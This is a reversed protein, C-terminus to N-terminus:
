APKVIDAYRALIDPNERLRSEIQPKEWWEVFVKGTRRLKDLRDFLGRTICSSVALFFGSCDFEELLDRIGCDLDNVGVSKKIAKCQVVVRRLVTPPSDGPVKSDPGPATHWEAIHDRGGDPQRTPGVQRVRVVRPEVQLLELILLEFREPNCHASWAFGPRLFEMEKKQRSLIASRENEYARRGTQTDAVVLMHRMGFVIVRDELPVFVLMSRPTNAELQSLMRIGLNRANHPLIYLNGATQLLRANPGEISEVSAFTSIQRFRRVARYAQLVVVRSKISRFHMWTPNHRWNHQIADSDVSEKLISCIRTAWATSRAYDYADDPLPSEQPWFSMWFARWFFAIFVMLGGVCKLKEQLTTCRFIPAQELRLVYAYVETEPMEVAPNYEEWLSCSYGQALLYVGLLHAIADHLDTRDGSWDWSTTRIRMWVEVHHTDCNVEARIGLPARDLDAVVHRVQSESTVHFTYGMGEGLKQLDSLSEEPASMIEM